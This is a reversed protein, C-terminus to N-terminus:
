TRAAIIRGHQTNRVPNSSILPFAVHDIKNTLFILLDFIVTTRTTTTARTTTTMSTATTSSTTTQTTPSPTTTSVIITIAVSPTSSLNIDASSPPRTTTVTVETLQPTQMSSESIDILDITSATTATAEEQAISNEPSSNEKIIAFTAADAPTTDDTQGSTSQQAGVTTTKGFLRLTPSVTKSQLLQIVSDTKRAEEPPPMSALTFNNSSNRQKKPINSCSQKGCCKLKLRRVHKAKVSPSLFNQM